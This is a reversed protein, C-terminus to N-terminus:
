LRSGREEVPARDPFFGTGYHVDFMMGYTFSVVERVLTESATANRRLFEEMTFAIFELESLRENSAFRDKAAASLNVQTNRVVDDGRVPGTSPETAEAALSAVRPDAALEDISPAPEGHSALAQAVAAAVARARRRTTHASRATIQEAASDWLAPFSPVGAVIRTVFESVEAQASACLAEPLETRPGFEFQASFSVATAKGDSVKYTAQIQVPANTGRPLYRSALAGGTFVRISPESSDAPAFVSAGLGAALPSKSSYYVTAGGGKTPATHHLSVGPTEATTKM